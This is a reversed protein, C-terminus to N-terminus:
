YPPTIFFLLINFERRNPSMNARTQGNGHWGKAPRGFRDRRAKQRLRFVKRVRNCCSLWSPSCGGITLTTSVRGPRPLAFAFLRPCYQGHSFGVVKGIGTRIIVLDVEDLVIFPHM